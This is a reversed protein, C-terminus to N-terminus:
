FPHGRRRQHIAIIALAAVTVAMAIWLNAPILVALMLLGFPSRLLILAFVAFAAVIVIRQPTPGQRRRVIEVRHTRPTPELELIEGDLPPPPRRRRQSTQSQRLGM